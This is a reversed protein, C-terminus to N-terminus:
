LKALRRLIRRYDIIFTDIEAGAYFTASDVDHDDDLHLDHRIKHITARDADTGDGAWAVQSQLVRVKTRFGLLSPERIERTINLRNGVGGAPQSECGLERLRQRLRLWKAPREGREVRRSNSRVWSAIAQTERDALQDAWLPVLGHQAVRLTFRFLERESCTLVMGHRDLFALLAVLGTRKNGNHFAHNLVVSHFLAAAAMEVTPYKLTDGFATRSRHAASSLLNADRVGPPEITDASSAFDEVLAEHIASLYQESLHDLEAAPSGILKWELPPMARVELERQRTPTHDTLSPFLSRVRRLSGKPLKRANSPLRVGVTELRDRFEERSVNGRRLWYAVTLQARESELLGLAARAAPMDRSAILDNPAEVSELGAEWLAVLAEDLELGSARALDAVRAADRAM